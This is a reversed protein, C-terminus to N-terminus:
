YGIGKKAAQARLTEAVKADFADGKGEAALRKNESAIYEERKKSLEVVKKQLDARETRAKAVRQQLEDRDLKQLETPLQKQDIEEFKLKSENLADVLEGAGQVGKGTKSNYSLRDAMASAPAAAAMAM